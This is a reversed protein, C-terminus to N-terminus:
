KKAILTNRNKYIILGLVMLWIILWAPRIYGTEYYIYPIKAILETTKIVYFLLLWAPFFFLVSFSPIILSLFIAGMILVTLPSLTWLILLNAFPAILSIISFNYALLPLTFVQAALTVSLV